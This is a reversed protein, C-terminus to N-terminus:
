CFLQRSKRLVLVRQKDEAFVRLWHEILDVFNKGGNNCILRDIGETIFYELVEPMRQMYRGHEISHIAQHLMSENALTLAHVNARLGVLTRIVALETNRCAYHLPTYGKQTSMEIEAGATILHRIMQCNGSGVAHHVCTRGYADRAYVDAGQSLLLDVMALDGVCSAIMLMTQGHSNPTDVCHGELLLDMIGRQDRRHCADFLAASAALREIQELM